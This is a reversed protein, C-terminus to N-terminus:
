VNFENSVATATQGCSDTIVRSVQFTGTLGLAAWDIVPTDYTGSDVAPEASADITPDGSFRAVEVPFSTEALTTDEVVWEVNTLTCGDSLTDNGSLPANIDVVENVTTAIGFSVIPGVSTSLQGCSDTVIQFARYTM